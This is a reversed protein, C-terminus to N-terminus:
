RPSTPVPLPPAPDGGEGQPPPTFAAARRWTRALELKGVKEYLEAMRLRLSADEPKAVAQRYLKKLENLHDQIERTRRYQEQAEDSRGLRQYTLGLLHRTPFDHRDIAVGQELLAAAAQYEGDNYHIQARLRLLDPCRTQLEQLPSRDLLTRAEPQRSLNMLCEARLALEQPVRRADLGADDLVALAEAYRLEKVLLGALQIQVDERHAASLERRLADRFAEIAEPHRNLDKRISGILRFPRGDAPDLRGWEKAHYVVKEYAMQDYLIAALGRHADLHDPQYHLVLYFAATAQPVDQLYFLCRGGLALAELRAEGEGRIQSLEQLAETLLWRSSAAGEAALDPAAQAYLAKGRVLHALDAQGAAELRGALRKAEAWDGRRIAEEARRLRSEPRTASYWWAGVGAVAGLLLLAGFFWFLLRRRKSM